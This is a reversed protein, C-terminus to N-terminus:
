GFLPSGDGQSRRQGQCRFRPRINPWGKPLDALKLRLPAQLEQLLDMSAPAQRWSKLGPRSRRRSGIGVPHPDFSCGIGSPRQTWHISVSGRADNWGQWRASVFGVTADEFPFPTTLWFVGSPTVFPMPRAGELGRRWARLAFKGWRRKSAPRDHGIASAMELIRTGARVRFSRWGSSAIIRFAPSLIGRM